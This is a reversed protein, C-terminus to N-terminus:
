WPLMEEYARAIREGEATLRHKAPHAYSHEILRMEALDTRVRDKAVSYGIHLMALLRHLHPRELAVVRLGAARLYALHAPSPQPLLM